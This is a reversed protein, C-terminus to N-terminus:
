FPLCISLLLGVLRPYLLSRWCQIRRSQRNSISAPTLYACGRPGLLLHRRRPEGHIVTMIRVPIQVLERLLEDIEAGPEDADTYDALIVNPVPEGHLDQQYFSVDNVQRYWEMPAGLTGGINKGLWCGNVKDIYDKHSLQM